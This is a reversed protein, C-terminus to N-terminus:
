VIQIFSINRVMDTARLMCDIFCKGEMTKPPTQKFVDNYTHTSLDGM